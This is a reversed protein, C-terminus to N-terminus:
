GPTSRSPEPPLLDPVGERIPYSRVCRPCDLQGTLVEDSRSETEILRLEGRCVPCRLIETLERRM